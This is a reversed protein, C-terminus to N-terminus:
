FKRYFSEDAIELLQKDKPSDGYVYLYYDQRNPYEIMFRRVKEEGNCNKTNFGGTLFGNKEEPVTAIIKKFGKTEAWPRIWNAMSASVIVLEHGREEHWKIKKLARKKIIQPLRNISYNECLRNVRVPADRSFFLLINKRKAVNNSIMRFIYFFSVPLFKTGGSCLKGFSFSHLIFDLFTDKKTITGDFDFAAISFKM